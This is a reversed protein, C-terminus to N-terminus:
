GWSSVKMDEPYPTAVGGQLGARLGLLHYAWKTSCHSPASDRTHRPVSRFRTDM